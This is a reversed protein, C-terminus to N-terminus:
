ERNQHLKVAGIEIMEFHLQRIERDQGYPCQNCELDFVVYSM